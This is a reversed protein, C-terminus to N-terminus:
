VTAETFAVVKSLRAFSINTRQMYRGDRRLSFGVTGLFVVPVKVKLLESGRCVNIIRIIKYTDHETAV